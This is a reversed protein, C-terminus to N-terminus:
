SLLLQVTGRARQRLENLLRTNEIAIVAQKSLGSQAHRNGPRLGVAHSPHFSEFESIDVCIIEKFSQVSKRSDLRIRAKSVIRTQAAANSIRLEPTASCVGASEAVVGTDDRKLVTNVANHQLHKEISLQLKKSIPVPV